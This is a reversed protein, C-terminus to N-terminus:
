HCDLTDSLVYAEFAVEDIWFQIHADLEGSARWESLLQGLTAKLAPDRAEVAQVLRYGVVPEIQRNYRVWEPLAAIDDLLRSEQAVAKCEGLKLGILAQATSPYFRPVIGFRQMLLSAYPSGSTMCVPQRQLAQWTSPGGEVASLASVSSEFYPIGQEAGMVLDADVGEAPVTKRRLATGLKHALTHEFTHGPGPQEAASLLPYAGLNYSLVEDANANASGWLLALALTGVVVRPLRM